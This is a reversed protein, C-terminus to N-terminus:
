HQTFTLHIELTVGLVKPKKELPLVHVALKVQPHLHHEHTDSTFLIVTSKTTTVTLKKNNIYNLVQSLYIKLGNILDAVVPGSIYITFDDAYKIQKIKPPPTPIDALYYNFLAPSLVGGLVVGTKVKRGKSGEQRFHVKARRNQMYNYLWRRITSPINANFVCNLLQQHGVNGICSYSRARRASIPSCAKKKLLQCCHRRHDDVTCHMDLTEVSLWTSCHPFPHTGTNQGAPAIGANQGSPVTSSNPM